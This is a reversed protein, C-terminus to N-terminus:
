ETDEMYEDHTFIFEPDRLYKEVTYMVGNPFPLLGIGKKAADNVIKTTINEIFIRDRSLDLCLKQNRTEDLGTFAKHIHTLSNNKLYDDAWIYTDFDAQTFEM